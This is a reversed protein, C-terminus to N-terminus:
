KNPTNYLLAHTFCLNMVSMTSRRFRKICVQKQSQGSCSGHISVRHQTSHHFSGTLVETTDYYLEATYTFLSWAITMQRTSCQFSSTLVTTYSNSEKERVLSNAREVNDYTKYNNVFGLERAHTFLVRGHTSHRFCGTLARDRGIHITRGHVSVRRQTSHHFSGTLVKDHKIHIHFKAIDTAHFSEEREKM